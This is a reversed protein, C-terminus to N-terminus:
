RYNSLFRHFSDLSTKRGITQRFPSNGGCRHYGFYACDIWVFRTLFFFFVDVRRVLGVIGGITPGVYYVEAAVLNVCALLVVLIPTCNIM